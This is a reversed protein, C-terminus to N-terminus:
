AGVRMLKTQGHGTVVPIFRPFRADLSRDGTDVKLTPTAILKSPTAVVMVDDPLRVRSLVAPSLPLNGRGLFFGQAGIPSVVVGFGDDLALLDSEKADRVLLKARAGADEIRVVDLGLLTGDVGLARKVSEMTTGAGLVYVRGPEIAEAVAPGLTEIEVEDDEGALKSGQVRPHSPVRLTGKLDVRLEGRRFADEDIDLVEHVEVGTFSEVVVAAAEPTDAFAPSYMKVGAPVGLAPVDRGRLADAVDTATGDGGVFVLVDVGADAIARAAAKTDDATTPESPAYVVLASVDAAACADDGMAGAATVVTADPDLARLFEVARPFAREKAGLARAEAVKRDTGKLGVAGGLGAVPNVVLGVRRAPPMVPRAPPRPSFFTLRGVDPHLHPWVQVPGGGRGRSDRAPRQGPDAASAARAPTCPNMVLAQKAPKRRSRGGREPDRPRTGGGRRADGEPAAQPERPAFPLKQM